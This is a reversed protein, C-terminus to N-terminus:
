ENPTLSSGSGASGAPDASGPAILRGALVAISAALLAAAGIPFMWAPVAGAIASALLGLAVTVAIVPLDYLASRALVAWEIRAKRGQWSGILLCWQGVRVTVYGLPAYLLAMLDFPGFRGLLMLFATAIIGVLAAQSGPRFVALALPIVAVTYPLWQAGDPMFTRWAAVGVMVAILVPLAACLAWGRIARRFQVDVEPLPRDSSDRGRLADSLRNMMM